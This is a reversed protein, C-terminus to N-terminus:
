TFGAVEVFSLLLSLAVLVCVGRGVFYALSCLVCGARKMKGDGDEFMEYGYWGCHGVWYEVGEWELDGEEEACYLVGEKEGEADVGEL